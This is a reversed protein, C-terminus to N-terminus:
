VELTLGQELEKKLDQLFRGADIGDIIRHDYSLCLNMMSRVAIADDIVVPLKRITEVGLIAAQPQHIIPTSFIAGYTGPNTITFTGGQLADLPLRKERASKALRLLEKAIGAIDLKEAGKMVPVILGDDTATAVGINYYKKIIIKDEKMSSNLVPFRQLSNVVAKVSISTYTLPAERKSEFTEKNKERFTAVRTMDVEVVTTVHPSIQKSKVMHEAISKRIKSIEVIEEEEGSEIPEKKEEKARAPEEKFSEKKKIGERDLFDLIDKKTVRGEIGTGQIATIDLQYESILRAVVPTIRKGGEKFSVEKQSAPKESKKEKLVPEKSKEEKLAPEDKETVVAEKEKEQVAGKGDAILAIDDGVQVTTGEKALIKSLVGGAPSPIETDVKDTSIEVLPEDKEVSEGEKKLWKIITGEVVTEGLQPLTVRTEM